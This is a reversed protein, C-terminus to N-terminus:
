LAHIQVVKREPEPKPQPALPRPAPAIRRAADPGRVAGRGFNSGSCRLITRESGQAGQKTGFETARRQPLGHVVRMTSRKHLSSGGPRRTPRRGSRIAPPRASQACEQARPAHARADARRGRADCATPAVVQNHQASSRLHAGHAWVRSEGSLRPTRAEKNANGQKTSHLKTHPRSRPGNTNKSRLDTTALCPGVKTSSARIRGSTPRAQVSTSVQHALEVSSPWAPGNESITTSIPCTTGVDSLSLRKRGSKTGYRGVDSLIKVCKTSRPRFQVITPNIDAM